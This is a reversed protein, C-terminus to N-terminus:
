CSNEAIRHADEEIAQYNGTNRLKKQNILDHKNITTGLEQAAPTLESLGERCRYRPYQSYKRRSIKTNPSKCKINTESISIKISVLRM